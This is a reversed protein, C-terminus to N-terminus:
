VLNEYSEPNKLRPSNYNNFHYLGNAVEPKNKEHSFEKRFAAIVSDPIQPSEAVAKDYEDKCM